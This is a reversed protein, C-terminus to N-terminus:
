FPQQRAVVFGHLHTSQTVDLSPYECDVIRFQRSCVNGGVGQGDREMLSAALLFHCGRAYFVVCIGPNQLAGVQMQM